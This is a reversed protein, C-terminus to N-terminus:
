GTKGMREVRERELRADKERKVRRWDTRKAKRHMEHEWDWLIRRDRPHTPPM